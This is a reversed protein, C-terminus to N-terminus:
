VNTFLFAVFTFIIFESYANGPLFDNRCSSSYAFTRLKSISFTGKRFSFFDKLASKDQYLASSDIISNMATTTSDSM